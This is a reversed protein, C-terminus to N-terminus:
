NELKGLILDPKYLREVRDSLIRAPQLILTGISGYKGPRITVIFSLRGAPISKEDILSLDMITENGLRFLSFFGRSAKKGEIFTFGGEDLELSEEHESAYYGDFDGTELALKGHGADIGAMFLDGAPVIELKDRFSAAPPLSSRRYVGNWEEKIAFKVVRQATARVRVRDKGVLDIGLIRLMEPVASNSISTYIGAFAPNSGGWDWQQREQGSHISITRDEPDFYLLATRGGAPEEKIWLGKLYSEFDEARGTLIGQIFLQEVNEGPVLSEKGRVYRNERGNWSFSVKRQDLPSAGGPAAEYLSIPAASGAAADGTEAPTEEPDEVVVSLGAGSFAKFYAAQVSALRRFVDLTQLSDDDIGFCLLEVNGDGLLDRPQVVIANPKTALTEGKWLRFYSGTAPQFDAIVVALNGGETSAPKVTIVQELDEDEDLNMDIADLFIEGWEPNIKSRQTREPEGTAESEDNRLTGLEIIRGAVPLTADLNEQRMRAFFYIFVIFALIFAATLLAQIARKM